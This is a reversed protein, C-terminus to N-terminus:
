SDKSLCLMISVHKITKGHKVQFQIVVPSNKFFLIFFLGRSGRKDAFIFYVLLLTDQM